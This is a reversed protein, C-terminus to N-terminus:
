REVKEFIWVWLPSSSLFNVFKGALYCLWTPFCKFHSGAWKLKEKDMSLESAKDLVMEKTIGYFDNRGVLFNIIMPSEFYYGNYGSTHTLLKKITPYENGEPLSLYNDIKSELDVKTFFPAINRSIGGTGSDGCGLPSQKKLPYPSAPFTIIATCRTGCDTTKTM